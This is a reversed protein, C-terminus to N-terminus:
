CGPSTGKPSFARNRSIRLSKQKVAPPAGYFIRGGIAQGVLYCLQWCERFATDSDRLFQARAARMAQELVERVIYRPTGFLLEPRSLLERKCTWQYFASGYRIARRLMRKKNIEDRLIMHGAIASKCHWGRFGANELRQVFETDEGMRYQAGVPGMSVDFRYGAQIVETRVGITAGWILIAPIPGEKLAPTIAFVNQPVTLIWNPPSIQWHPVIVGGFLAFPPHSDAAARMQVLWDRQPVVDDDTM